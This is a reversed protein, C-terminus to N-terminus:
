PKCIRCQSYGKALAQVRDVEEAQNVGYMKGCGLRHFRKGYQSAIWVKRGPRHRHWGDADAEVPPRLPGGDNSGRADNDGGVHAVNGRREIMDDKDEDHRPSPKSKRKSKAGRKYARERQAEDEEFSETDSTCNIPRAPTGPAALGPEAAVAKLRQNFGRNLDVSVRVKLDGDSDVLERQMLQAGSRVCMGRWGVVLVLTGLVLMVAGFMCPWQERFVMIWALIECMVMALGSDEGDPDDNDMANVLLPNLAHLLMAVSVANCQVGSGHKKIMRVVKRFHEENCMERFVDEGVPEYNNNNDRVNLRYLLGRIRQGALAKTGLDGVNVKGNVPHVKFLGEAVADQAWLIKTSLHRVRGTGRRSLIGRAASSDLLVHLDISMRAVFEAAERVFLGDIAGSVASNYEAEGSSLAITAQTRSASCQFQQDWAIVGCSVSKRTRVCGAWDSDTHVEIISKGTGSKVTIGEGQEPEGLGVCFGSTGMLYSCLHRLVKWAVNTPSSMRQALWRITFQADVVDNQIYLLIGVATRYSSAQEKNLLDNEKEVLTGGPFPSTKPRGKGVGTIEVLRQVHRPHPEIVLLESTVLVYRRKLLYVEDGPNILWGVTCKYKSKVCNVLKELADVAGGCFLDDVHVLSGADESTMQFLSPCPKFVEIDLHQQLHNMFSEHWGSTGDRQGPLLKLLKYFRWEGVWAKVVTDEKQDVTLFADTIDLTAVGYKGGENRKRMVYSPLLRLLLSSSAPAFTVEKEPDLWTYERAVWRSRRLYWPQGEREKVRWSRVMKTSLLRHSKIEDDDAPRLVGMGLLRDVEYADGIADLEELDGPEISPEHESFPFWLEEPIGSASIGSEGNEPEDFLDTEEWFQLDYDQLNDLADNTFEPVLVEDAHFRDMNECYNVVGVRPAKSAREGEAAPREEGGQEMAGAGSDGGPGQDEIDGGAPFNDVSSTSM